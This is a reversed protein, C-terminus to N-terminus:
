VHARGIQNLTTTADGQAFYRRAATYPDLAGARDKAEPTLLRLQQARSFVAFNELYLSEIDPTRALFTQSLRRRLSSGDPLSDIGIRAARRLTEPTWGHYRAGLSLNYVTQWYRYYGAM